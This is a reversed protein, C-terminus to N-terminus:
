QIHLLLNRLFCKGKGPGLTQKVFELAKDTSTQDTVDLRVTWLKGPGRGAVKRLETEGAETLCGAFTNIGNQILKLVLWHGFGSDCGTVFVPAKNSMDLTLFNERIWEYIKFPISIIASLATIVVDM